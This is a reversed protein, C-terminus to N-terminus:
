WSGVRCPPLVHVRGPSWVLGGVGLEPQLEGPALQAAAEALCCSSRTAQVVGVEVSPPLALGVLCLLSGM